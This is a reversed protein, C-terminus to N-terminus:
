LRVGLAVTLLSVQQKYDFDQSYGGLKSEGKIKHKGLGNYYVGLSWRDKLLIGAGAKYAFQNALDFETTMKMNTEEVTMNTIKLLDLGVGLDGYFSILDNAKLTYDVGIILPINIYRYFTIDPNMLYSSYGDEYEDRVSKKLGNYNFEAGLFVGLGKYVNFTYDGGVCFGVGAGGADESFMDDDAFVGLPFAAGGHLSFYNQSYTNGALLLITMFATLSLVLKKM